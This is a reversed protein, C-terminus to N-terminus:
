RSAFIRLSEENRVLQALLTGRRYRKILRWWPTTELELATDRMARLVRDYELRFRDLTAASLMMHKFRGGTGRAITRTFDLWDAENLPKAPLTIGFASTDIPRDIM